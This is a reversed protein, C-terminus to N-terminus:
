EEEEYDECTTRTDEDCRKVFYNLACMGEVYFKCKGKPM